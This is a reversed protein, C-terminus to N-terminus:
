SPLYSSIHRCRLVRGSSPCYFTSGGRPSYTRQASHAFRLHRRTMLPLAPGLLRSSLVLLIIPITNKTYFIPSCFHILVRVHSALSYWEDKARKSAQWTQLSYAQWPIKWDEWTSPNESKRLDQHCPLPFTCINFPVLSAHLSDLLNSLHLRANSITFVNYVGLDTAGRAENRVSRM